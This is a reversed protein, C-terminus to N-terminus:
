TILGIKRKELISGVLNQNAKRFGASLISKEEWSINPYALKLTKIFGGNSRFVKREDFSNIKESSIRNWEMPNKIELKNEISKIAKFIIEPKRLLSKSANKFKWPIFDFEPFVTSLMKWLNDGYYNNLLTTGGKSYIERKSIKYWESFDAGSLGLDIGIKEM